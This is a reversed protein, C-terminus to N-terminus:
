WGTMGHDASITTGHLVTGADSTLFTIVNVIQELTPHHGKASLTNAWEWFADVDGDFPRGPDNAHDIVVAQGLDTEAILGPCVAYVDIGLTGVEQALTTAMALLGTKAVAYAMDNIFARKATNSSIFLIKGTGRELMGPLFAQTVRRASNLNVEMMKDWIADTTDIFSAFELAGANNILIDIKGFHNLTEQKFRAIDDKDTVDCHVALADRGGKRIEAVVEDLREKDTACLSVSAGEESYSRALAAGLGRSGGTIVVVKNEFRM